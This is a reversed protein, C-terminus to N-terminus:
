LIPVLIGFILMSFIAFNPILSDLRDLVGGNGPKMGGSGEVGAHRKFWSAFLEGSTGVVAIAAGLAMLLGCYLLAVHLGAPPGWLFPRLTIALIPLLLPLLLGLGSGIMGAVLGEWTNSPSIRPALKRGGFKRGVHYASADGVFVAAILAVLIGFILLSLNLATLWRIAVLVSGLASVGYLAFLISQVVNALPSTGLLRTAAICAVVLSLPLAIAAVAATGTSVRARSAVDSERSYAGEYRLSVDSGFGLSVDIAMLLLPISGLTVATATRWPVTLSGRTRITLVDFTFLAALIAFVVAIAAQTVDTSVNADLLWAALVFLAVLLAAVATPECSKIYRPPSSFRGVALDRAPASQSM